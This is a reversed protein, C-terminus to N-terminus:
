IEGGFTCMKIIGTVTLGKGDEYIEVKDGIRFGLNQLWVGQIRVAPVPKTSSPGPYMGSVTLVRSSMVFSREKNLPFGFCAM